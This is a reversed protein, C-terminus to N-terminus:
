VSSDWKFITSGAVARCALRWNLLDIGRLSHRCQVTFLVCLPFPSHHKTQCMKLLQPLLQTEQKESLGCDTDTQHFRNFGTFYIFADIGKSWESNEEINKSYDWVLLACMSLFLHAFRCTHSKMDDFSSCINPNVDDFKQIFNLRPNEIDYHEVNFFIIPRTQM